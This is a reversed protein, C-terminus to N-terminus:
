QKQRYKVLTSYLEHPHIPKSVYDNMGAAYCRTEDEKMAFATMAIVPLATFRPNQRILRTATLGDMVPMQVDMLVVDFDESSNELCEIAEKGDCAEAISVGAKVLMIRALKRNIDVDEVLLARLGHLHYDEAAAPPQAMMAPVKEELGFWASFYFRSGKKLESEVGIEGEMMEVLKKSIALGLGTGGYRRTISSDGQTFAQFLHEKQENSMGIGTDCVEFLLRARTKGKMPAKELLSVKVTIKGQPTFKIANSILNTLVQKVRLPDGILRRPVDQGLVFELMLAKERASLGLVSKLAEIEHDLNFSGHEFELKGAEIKSFDLVDNLVGLLSKAATNAEMIYDRQTADLETGLVLHTMGLIANMPTRIEHSMNALFISKAKNAAEAQNKAERLEHIDTFLVLLQQTVESGYPIFDVLVWAEKNFSTTLRFEGKQPTNTKLARLAKDYMGSEKWATINHFNRGLVLSSSAAGSSRVAADNALVCHGGPDFLMIGQTSNCVIRANMELLEQLTTQTHKRDSIDQVFCFRYEEGESNIYNTTVEVPFVTGDKRRHLSEITQIGDEKIKSWRESATEPSYLPDFDWISLCTLEDLTYGLGQCAFENAHLVKGAPSIWFFASKSRNIATHAQRLEREYRRREMLYIVQNALLQFAHLQEDTLQRPKLDIVCLTGLTFGDATKLPAGAYFRLAPAATVLPNDSFRKDELTNPVMFIDNQLIAHACFAGDRTLEPADVGVRSKFWVRGADVLSVLCIPTGCIYSALRTISDFATEPATDLIGYKQLAELRETENDPLPATTM